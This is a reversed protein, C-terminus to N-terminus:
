CRFEHGEGSSCWSTGYERGHHHAHRHMTSHLARDQTRDRADRVASATALDAASQASAITPLGFALAAIVLARTFPKPLQHPLQSQKLRM